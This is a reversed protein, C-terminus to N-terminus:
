NAASSRPYSKKRVHAEDAQGTTQYFETTKRHGTESDAGVKREKELPRLGVRSSTSAFTRFQSDVASPSARHPIQVRM